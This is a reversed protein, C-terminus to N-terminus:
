ITDVGNGASFCSRNCSKSLKSLHTAVSPFSSSNVKGTSSSTSIFFQGFNVLRGSAGFSLTTLRSSPLGSSEKPITLDLCMDEIELSIRHTRSVSASCFSSSDKPPVSAAGRDCRFMDPQLKKKTDLWDCSVGPTQFHNSCRATKAILFQSTSM